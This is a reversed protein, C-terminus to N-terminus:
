EEKNQDMATIAGCEENSNVFDVLRNCVEGSFTGKERLFGLIEHAAEEDGERKLYEICAALTPRSLRLKWGSALMAKRMMEVASWGCLVSDGSLAM